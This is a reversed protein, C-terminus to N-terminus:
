EMAPLLAALDELSALDHGSVFVDVHPLAARMGRALPRYGPDAKLPNVWVVRHALRSLRAMEDRLVEPDGRELGDSCIIVVAGRAKGHRGWARMFERLSEGIRTGGQWDVVASAAESLARDPDRRRLAETVRTLRTGFCFAEVHRAGTAASHAFQLLVRSYEAMSGSVDLILVLRRPRERRRRWSRRVVEGHTRLARRVTRRVDPRRGRRSPETRRTRRKPVTVRLSAVLHRLAALEEPSCEAFRKRRLIEVDSAAAGGSPAEGLIRPSTGALSAQDSRAGPLPGISPAPAPTEGLFYERFTRDYADLDARRSVLCARGAWYLDDLDTPDLRAAARCYTLVQGEGVPVGSGRLARGFGVLGTVVREGPREESPM